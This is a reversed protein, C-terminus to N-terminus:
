DQKIEDPTPRRIWTDKSILTYVLGAYIIISLVCFNYIVDIHDPCSLTLACGANGTNSYKNNEYPQIHQMYYSAHGSLAQAVSAGLLIKGFGRHFPLLSKRVKISTKPFAYNVFGGIFQLIYFFILLGGLWAHFSYFHKLPLNAKFKLMAAFGTGFACIAIFHFAGHIIKSFLKIEHRHVRYALLAEGQFFIFGLTMLFGHFNVYGAIKSKDESWQLGGDVTGFIFGSLVMMIVGVGHTILAAFDFYKMTQKYKKHEAAKDVEPILNAAALDVEESYPYM